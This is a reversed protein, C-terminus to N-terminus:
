NQHYHFWVPAEEQQTYIDRYSPIVANVALLCWGFAVGLDNKTVNGRNMNLLQSIIDKFKIANHYNFIYTSLAGFYQNITVESAPIGETQSNYGKDTRTMTEVPRNMIFKGYGERDFYRMLGPKQSECLLPAGYFIAQMLMDEYFLDPDDHRHLYVCVPQNTLFNLGGDVPIKVGSEILFKTGDKLEDYREFTVSAGKSKRGDSTDKHDFPDVGTRFLDSNGPVMQDYVRFVLNDEFGQLKSVEWRGETNVQFVVRSFRIGGEWEFNGRMTQNVRDEDPFNLRDMTEQLREKHFATQDGSPALADEITLPMKRREDAAEKVKGKRKLDEITNQIYIRTAVEDVLGYEDPEGSEAASVFIVYIGSTTRGNRNREKPNSDKYLEIVERLQIDSLEEVTSELHLMGVKTKLSNMSVCQRLISVVKTLSMGELKGFENVIAYLAKQGDFHTAVCPGYLIASGIESDEYISEKEEGAAAEDRLSKATVSEAPYEFLLGEKNKSSGSNVPKVFWLMKSHANLIRKYNDKVTDETKSQMIMKKNAYRFMQFYGRHITIETARMRRAKFLATGLCFPDHDLMWYLNYLKQQPEYFIPKSGDEVTWYNLFHYYDGTFYFPRGKILWWEGNDFKHYEQRIFAEEDPTTVKRKLLPVPIETRKFKQEEIPLEYNRMESFHPMMPLPVIYGSIRIEGGVESWDATYLNKSLM